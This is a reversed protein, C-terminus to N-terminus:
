ILEDPFSKELQVASFKTNHNCCIFNLVATTLRQKLNPRDNYCFRYNIDKLPTMEKILELL